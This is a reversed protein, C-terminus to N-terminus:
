EIVQRYIETIGTIINGNSDETCEKMDSIFIIIPFDSQRKMEDDTMKVWDKPIYKRAIDLNDTDPYNEVCTWGNRNIRVFRKVYYM